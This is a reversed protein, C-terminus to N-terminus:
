RRRRIRAYALGLGILAPIGLSLPLVGSPNLDRQETVSLRLDPSVTPPTDAGALNPDPLVAVYTGLEGGNVAKVNWDIRVSQHPAIPPLYQTRESSWDEPDVYVGKTFSVINLHAVLGSLPADGGNEITSSFGTSQGLELTAQTQSLAVGVPPHRNAQAPGAIGASVAVLGALALAALRRTRM